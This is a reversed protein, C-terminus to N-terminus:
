RESGGQAAAHRAPESGRLLTGDSDLSQFGALTVTGTTPVATGLTASPGPIPQNM